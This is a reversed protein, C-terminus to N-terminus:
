MASTLEKIWSVLAEMVFPKTLVQMGPDLNRAGPGTRSLGHRFLTDYGM